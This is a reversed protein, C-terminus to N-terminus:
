LDVGDVNILVVPSTSDFSMGQPGEVASVQEPSRPTFPVSTERPLVTNRSIARLM